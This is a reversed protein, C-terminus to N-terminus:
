RIYSDCPVHPCVRLVSAKLLFRWWRFISHRPTERQLAPLVRERKRERQRQKSRGTGGKKNRDNLVIPHVVEVFLSRSLSLDLSISKLGPVEVKPHVVEVKLSSPLFARCCRPFRLRSSFCFFCLCCRGLIPISQKTHEFPAVANHNLWNWIWYLQLLESLCRFTNGENQDFPVLGLGFPALGM